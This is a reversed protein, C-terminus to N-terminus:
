TIIHGVYFITLTMDRPFHVRFINLTLRTATTCTHLLAGDYSWMEGRLQAGCWWWGAVCRVNCMGAEGVGEGWGVREVGGLGAWGLGAGGRHHYTVKHGARVLKAFSEAAAVAVSWCRTETFILETAEHELLRM